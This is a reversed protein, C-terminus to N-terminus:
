YLTFGDADPFKAALEKSRHEARERQAPDMREQLRHLRLLATPAGNAHAFLYWAYAEQLDQTVNLGSEYYQALYLQAIAQGGQAGRRFLIFANGPNAEVGRGDHYMVGLNFCINARLSDKRLIDEFLRVAKPENQSVGRGYAYFVALNGKATQNGLISSLRYYFLTKDTPDGRQAHDMAYYGKKLFLTGLRRGGGAVFFTYLFVFVFLFLYTNRLTLKM